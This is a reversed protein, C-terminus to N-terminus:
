AAELKQAIYMVDAYDSRLRQLSVMSIVRMLLKIANGIVINRSESRFTDAYCQPSQMGHSTLFACLDERNLVPHYYTPYPFHGPQGASPVGYIYRYYWVHIKFPLLRALFGRVTAPDPIQLVLLGGPRLWRMFNALAVDARPIHELVFACYIVDFSAEPLNVSCLDGCIATDLDRTKTKRLDLAVPDLDVGTLLYDTGALDILWREGCGAELISLTRGLRKGHAVIAETQLRSIEERSSTPKLDANEIAFPM